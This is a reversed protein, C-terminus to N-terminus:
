LYNKIKIFYHGNKKFMCIYQCGAQERMKFFYLTKNDNKSRCRCFVVVVKNNHTTKDEEIYQIIFKFSKYDWGRTKGHTSTQKQKM